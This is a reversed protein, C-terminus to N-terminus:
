PGRGGAHGRPATRSSRAPGDGSPLAPRSLSQQGETQGSLATPSRAAPVQRAETEPRLRAVGLLVDAFHGPTEEMSFPTHTDAKGDRLCM